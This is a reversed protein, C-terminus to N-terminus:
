GDDRRLQISVNPPEQALPGIIGVRVHQGPEDLEVDSGISFNQYSGWATVPLDEKDCRVIGRLAAEDAILWDTVVRIATAARADNHMIWLVGEGAGPQGHAAWEVQLDDVSPKQPLGGAWELAISAITPSAGTGDGWIVSLSSVTPTHTGGGDSWALQVSEVAPMQRDGCRWEVALGSVVPKAQSQWELQVSAVSPLNAGAGEGSQIQLSAIQPKNSGSGTAWELQLSAVTPSTDEEAWELQLSYVRLGDDEILYVTDDLGSWDQVADYVVPSVRGGIMWCRGGTAHAARCYPAYETFSEFSRYYVRTGRRVMWATNYRTINTLYWEQWAAFVQLADNAGVVKADARSVYIDDAEASIVPARAITSLKLAEAQYLSLDIDGLGAAWWAGHYRGPQLCSAVDILCRRYAALETTVEVLASGYLRWVRPEAVRQIVYVQGGMVEVAFIKHAEAGIYSFEICSLVEWVGASYQWLQVQTNSDALVLAYGDPSLSLVGRINGADGPGNASVVQADLAFFTKGGLSAIATQEYETLRWFASTVSSGYRGILVVGDPMEAIDTLDEGAIDSVAIITPVVITPAPATATISAVTVAVNAGGAVAVAPVSISLEVAAPSVEAGTTIVPAPASVTLSVAVADVEVGVAPAEEASVDWFTANDGQCNYTTEIADASWVARALLLEDLRGNAYNALAGTSTKNAGVTLDDTNGAPAANGDGVVWSGGVPSGDVYMAISAGTGFTYTAAVHHYAGTGLVANTSSWIQHAGAGVYGFEVKGATVRAVSFSYNYPDVGTSSRGKQLFTQRNTDDLYIWSMITIPEANAFGLSGDNGVTIFDNEAAVFQQGNAIQGAVQATGTRVGDNSNATSDDLNGAAAELPWAGELGDATPYVGTPDDFPGGTCGRWLLYTVADTDDLEPLGLAVVLKRSSDQVVEQVTHPVVTSGDARTVLLDQPIGGVVDLNDIFAAHSPDWNTGGEIIVLHGAFVTGVDPMPAPIVTPNSTIAIHGTTGAPPTVGVAVAAPASLTVPAVTAAVEAGGTPAPVPASGTLVTVAASIAAGGATTAAPASVTVGVVTATVEVGGGGSEDAVFDINEVSAGSVEVDEEVTPTFTYGVLTPTVDYTGDEVEISYAGDADTEDDSGNAAVTVGELGLSVGADAAIVMPIPADGLGLTWTGDTPDSGGTSAHYYWTNTQYQLRWKSFYYRIVWDSDTSKEYYPTGEFEGAYNYMGNADASGAGSVYFDCALDTDLITVAGSITTAGAAVTPASPVGMFEAWPNDPLDGGPYNGIYEEMGEDM